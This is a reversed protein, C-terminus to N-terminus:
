SSTWRWWPVRRGSARWSGPTPLLSQPASPVGVPPPEMVTLTRVTEPATSALTLAIAASYSVGVVHAPEVNLAEMLARCDAADAAVSGPRLLPRKGAYGRRHYHIVQYGGSLAIQQALPRLEDATLATQIVVVPEGEGLMELELDVGGLTIPKLHDM